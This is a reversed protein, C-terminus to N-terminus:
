DSELYDLGVAVDGTNTGAAKAVTVSLVSGAPIELAENQASTAGGPRNEFDIARGVNAAWAAVSRVPGAPSDTQGSNNTLVAVTTNGTGNTGRDILSVTLTATGSLGQAASSVAWLRKIRAPKAFHFHVSQSSSAALNPVTQAVTLARQFCSM